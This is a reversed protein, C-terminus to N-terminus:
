RDQDLCSLATDQWDLGRSVVAVVHGHDAVRAASRAPKAALLEKVRNPEDDAENIFDITNLTFQTIGKGQSAASPIPMTGFYRFTQRQVIDLLASDSINKIIGVPVISDGAPSKLKANQSQAFAVSVLLLLLITQIFKKKM